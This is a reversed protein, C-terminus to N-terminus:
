PVPPPTQKVLIMSSGDYMMRAEGDLGTMNAYVYIGGLKRTSNAILDLRTELKRLEAHSASSNLIIECGNLGMYTSPNSPTFLEECTECGVATDRTSLIADGIPVTSQGTVDRVVDELYYTETQMKKPWATFHRAERYLGDNALSMKPRILLVRKYTCLVRCNYRVNRHRVGLGLDVVMDKCVPDSLITALVEWSHLFTDGEPLPL